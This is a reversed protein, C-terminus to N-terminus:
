LIAEDSMHLEIRPATEIRGLPDRDALHGFDLGTRSEVAKIPVQFTRFEGFAFELDDTFDAQSVIYATASVESRQANDFAIVKWYSEPIQFGRYKPDSDSFIPGTFVSVKMDHNEANELVYDELRLWSRPNFREHQPTCNTWFFTDAVAAEAVSLNGWSPDLRRVLHGRHLNNSSYLAQGAQLEEPM